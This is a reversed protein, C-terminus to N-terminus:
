AFLTLNHNTSSSKFRVDGSAFKEEDLAM